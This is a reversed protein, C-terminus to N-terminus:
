RPLSNRGLKRRATHAMSLWAGPTMLKRSGLFAQRFMGACRRLVSECANALVDSSSDSKKQWSLEYSSHEYKMVIKAVSQGRTAKENSEGRALVLLATTLTM